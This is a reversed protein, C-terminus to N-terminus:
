DQPYRESPSAGRKLVVLPIMNFASVTSHLEGRRYDIYLNYRPTGRENITVENQEFIQELERSPYHYVYLVDDILCKFSWDKDRNARLKEVGINIWCRRPNLKTPTSTWVVCEYRSSRILCGSNIRHRRYNPAPTYRPEPAPTGHSMSPVVPSSGMDRESPNPPRPAVPLEKATNEWIWGMLHYWASHYDEKEQYTYVPIEIIKVDIGELLKIASKGNREAAGKQCFHFYFMPRRVEKPLEARFHLARILLDEDSRLALGCIFVTSNLFQYLWSDKQQASARLGSAAESYANKSVVVSAPCSAEGHMHWVRGRRRCVNQSVEKRILASSINRQERIPFSPLNEMGLAREFALDYNTTILAADRELMWRAVLRHISGPKLLVLDVCWNNWARELRSVRSKQEESFNKEQKEKERKLIRRLCDMRLSHSADGPMLLSKDDLIERYAEELRRTIAEWSGAQSQHNVLLNPSNGVLITYPYLM